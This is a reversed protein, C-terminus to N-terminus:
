LYKRMNNALDEEMSILKKAIDKVEEEAAPYKNLYKNLSKVGMNCGDTILDAVTSDREDLSLMINTKLWSMSRAMPNTEKGEDDYDNLLKHTESGLRQHEDRSDNLIKRLEDNEVNDFVENISNVGMKIGANCEKLLKVTDPNVM